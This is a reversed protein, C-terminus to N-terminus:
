RVRGEESRVSLSMRRCTEDRCWPEALEGEILAGPGYDRHALYFAYHAHLCKIRDDSGPAAIGPARAVVDDGAGDEGMGAARLWLRRHEEQARSLEQLLSPEKRVRDELEGIFGAGELRALEKRLFPCTLYYINPNPSGDDRFPENMIVSPWGFPCHEVVRFPISAARGLQLAVVQERGLGQYRAGTM